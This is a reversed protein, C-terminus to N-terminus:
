GLGAARYIAVYDLGWTAAFDRILNAHVGRRYMGALDAGAILAAEDDDLRFVPYMAAAPDEENERWVRDILDRLATDPSSYGRTNPGALGLLHIARELHWRSM